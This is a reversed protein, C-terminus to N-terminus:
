VGLLKKLTAVRRRSVQACQGDSTGVTTGAADRESSRIADLRVLESRHLRVFGADSLRIELNDLREETIQERGDAYFWTYKDKAWFRTIERADFIEVRNHHSAVVRFLPPGALRSRHLGELRLPARKSARELATRLREASVPKVVYDVAEAEFAEIAYEHYATVFIVAARGEIQSAVELGTLDPMDIDLLLLDPELDIAKAVAEQGSGAEGVVDIDDFRSLIRLIRERGLAEDDVVLVRQNM